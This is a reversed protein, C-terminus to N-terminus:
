NWFLMFSIKKEKILSPPTTMKVRKELWSIKFSLTFHYMITTGKQCLLTLDCSIHDVYCLRYCLVFPRKVKRLSKYSLLFIWRLALVAQFQATQPMELFLVSANSSVFKLIRERKWVWFFFMIFNRRIIKFNAQAMLTLQSIPTM